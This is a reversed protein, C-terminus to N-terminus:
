AIIIMIIISIWMCNCLLAHICTCVKIQRFARFKKIHVFYKLWGYIHQFCIMAHSFCGANFIGHVCSHTITFVQWMMVICSIMLKHPSVFDLQWKWRTQRSKASQGNRHRTVNRINKIVQVIVVLSCGYQLFPDDYTFSSSLLKSFITVLLFWKKNDHM